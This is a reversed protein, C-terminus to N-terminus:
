PLVYRFSTFLMNDIAQPQIGLGDWTNRSTYSYQMGWQVTGAAGKYFRYWFGLNGQWISRTDANCAGSVPAFTGTPALESQCGANNNLGSGYGVGKGAANTFADRDAYEVGGYGYVDLSTTPHTELTLLAHVAKIADLSSDAAITADPLMTTGYRGVGKGYLGSLGLDVMDRGGSMVPLYVGFGAGGAMTNFNQSCDTVGAPCGVVDVIRDRLIRGVAKLEWHGWGKPDFAVKAILDPAYDYTYNGTSNLTSGGLQGLVLNAPANRAAFTTQAAELSVGVSVDDGVKQTLRLGFQRAWDFGVAYQAEITLPIAESRPSLGTKDTTLFSWM